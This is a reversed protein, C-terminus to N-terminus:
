PNPDKRIGRVWAGPCYAQSSSEDLRGTRAWGRCHPFHCRGVQRPHLPKSPSGRAVRPCFADEHQQCRYAANDIKDRLMLYDKDSMLKSKRWRGTGQLHHRQCIDKDNLTIAFCLDGAIAKLRTLSLANHGQLLVVGKSGNAAFAESDAMLKAERNISAHLANKDISSPGCKCPQPNM